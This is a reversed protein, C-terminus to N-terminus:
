RGSPRDIRFVHHQGDDVPNDPQLYGTAIQTFGAALLARWSAPNAVAVPVIVTTSSPYDDWCKDVMEKIMATGLGHGTFRTEGIFYDISLTGEPVEVLTEMEVQDDPYDSFRYRQIFGIPDPEHIVIFDESAETGDFSGAFDREIAEDSTDHFWFRAVHLNQLWTQILPLDERTTRRFQMEDAEAEPPAPDVPM